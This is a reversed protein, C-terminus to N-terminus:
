FSYVIISCVIAAVAVFDLLEEILRRANGRGLYVEIVQFHVHIVVVVLWPRATQVRTVLVLILVLLVQGDIVEDVVLLLFEVVRDQVVANVIVIHEVLQSHGAAEGVVM